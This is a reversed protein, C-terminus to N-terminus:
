LYIVGEFVKVAPGSLYVDSIQGDNNKFDITLTKGSKTILDIPPEVGMVLNLYFATAVSGTGCALTEQEVGKEFTRIYYKGDYSYVFNVNTGEPAFEPANRIESGYYDARFFDFALSSLKFSEILSTFNLVFHRTGNDTFLGKITRGLIKVPFDTKVFLPDTLKFKFNSDTLKEGEYNLNASVFKAKNNGVLNNSYAYALACRAGNGCLMGGTGDSNYYDLSFDVGGESPKMLLLGDAGIGFRRDCIEQIMKSTFEVDQNKQADILIFDNGAGTYKEFIIKKM